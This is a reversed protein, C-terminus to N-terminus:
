KELVFDLVSQAKVPALALFRHLKQLGGLGLVIAKEFQAGDAGVVHDRRDLLFDRRVRRLFKVHRTVHIAVPM